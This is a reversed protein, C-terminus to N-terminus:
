NLVAWRHLGPLVVSFSAVCVDGRREPQRMIIYEIGRKVDTIITLLNYNDLHQSARISDIRSSTLSFLIM